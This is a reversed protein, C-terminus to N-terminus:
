NQHTKRYEKKKMFAMGEIQNLTDKLEKFRRLKLLPQKDPSLIQALVRETISLEEDTFGLSDPNV